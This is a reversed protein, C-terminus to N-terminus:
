VRQAHAQLAAVGDGLHDRPGSRSIHHPHTSPNTPGSINHIAQPRMQLRGYITVKKQIQQQRM